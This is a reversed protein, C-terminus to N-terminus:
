ELPKLVMGTALKPYFYTSKHPMSAGAGAVAKVQDLRTGRLIFAVQAQAGRAAGLVETGCPTYGVETQETQWAALAGDIVLTQLVAVDLGRWADCEDPAASQMAALDNLTAIWLEPGAVTAFAGPGFRSLFADADPMDAPVDSCRQWDFAPAAEILKPLSFGSALGSVMRHAPLIVLGPDDAAVLAFLAFHAEHDNDIKGAAKLADRYNMATAYRHHGDAIYVPTAQLATQVAAITEADDVVWLKETVGNLTGSIDPSSGATASWLTESAANDPDEFFGFIPALQQHTYETLKLRDAKPGAFTHEHPIVDQGLPTARVGCLIARRRHTKDAWPYTQEYAYLAPSEDQVLTGDAMWQQLMEAAAAYEADPGVEKPPVHPLDVVVINRDCRGALATKDDASLVDYPPAIYASIDGDADGQYRWGRFPRIDM